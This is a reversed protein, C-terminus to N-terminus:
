PGVVNIVPHSFCVAVVWACVKPIGKLKSSNMQMVIDKLALSGDHVKVTGSNGHSMILVALASVEGQQNERITQFIQQATPNRTLVPECVCISPLAKMFSELEIDSGPREVDLYFILVRPPQLLPYAGKQKETWALLKPVQKRYSCHYPTFGYSNKKMLARNVERMDQTQILRMIFDSHNAMAAIHLLNNGSSDEWLTVHHQRESLIISLFEICHPCM